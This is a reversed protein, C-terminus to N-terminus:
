STRAEIRWFGLLQDAPAYAATLKDGAKLPPSPLLELLDGDRLPVLGPNPNGNLTAWETKLRKGNVRLRLNKWEIKGNELLLADKIEEGRWKAVITLEGLNLCYLHKDSSGVYLRNELPLPSTVPGGTQFYGRLNGNESDLCYVRGDRSGVYLEEGRFSPSHLIADGTRYYWREEGKEADLCHLIGTADGVYIRGKWFAPSYSTEGFYHYWLREGNEADLCFFYPGVPLYIRGNALCIGTVSPFPAPLSWLIKGDEAQLVYIGEWTGVYIRNEWVLPPSCIPSGLSQKWVLLGDGASLAYLEGTQPSSLFIRNEWASPSYFLSSETQFGWRVRGTSSELAYLKGDYSGVYVTDGLVLPSSVVPGGTKFSWVPNGSLTLAYVKGDDSGFYIRQGDTSPSSHIGGLVEFSWLNEGTPVLNLFLIGHVRPAPEKLVGMAYTVMLMLAITGLIVMIAGVTESVGKQDM